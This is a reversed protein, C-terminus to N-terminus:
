KLRGVLIGRIRKQPLLYDSLPKETIVVKGASSSAHLFHLRDNQYFALGVHSVDLGEISTVLAIIDGNEIRHAVSEINDKSVFKMQYAAIQKEISKIEEFCAENDLQRYANPHTSMFHVSVDLATDGIQDSIIDILGKQKNDQMWDSFYHLRSPYGNIVGNRYRFLTLQNVFDDFTTKKNHICVSAALAYEVFTTCDVNRLNIVLHEEGEEELTSAVYPTELFSKAIDIVFNNWSKVSGSNDEVLKMFFLSDDATASVIGNQYKDNDGAQKNKAPSPGQCSFILFLFISMLVIERTM